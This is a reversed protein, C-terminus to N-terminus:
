ILTLLIGFVDVFPDEKFELPTPSPVLPVEETAPPLMLPGGEIAEEFVFSGGPPFPILPGGEIDVAVKPLFNGGARGTRIEPFFFGVASDPSLIKLGTIWNMSFNAHEM